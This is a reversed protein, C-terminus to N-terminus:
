GPRDSTGAESCSGSQGAGGDVLAVGAVVGVHVGVARHRDAQARRGRVVGVQVDGERLVAEGQGHRLEAPEVGRGARLQAEGDEAVDLGVEEDVGGLAVFAAVHELGGLHRQEVALLRHDGVGRLAREHDAHDRHHAIEGGGLLRDDDDEGFARGHGHLRDDGAVPPEDAQRDHREEALDAGDVRELEGARRGRVVLVVRLPRNGAAVSGALNHFLVLSLVVLVLVPVVTWNGVNEKTVTVVVTLTGSPPVTSSPPM